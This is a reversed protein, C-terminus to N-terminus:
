YGNPADVRCYWVVVEVPKRWPKLRKMEPVGVVSGGMKAARATADAEDRCPMMLPFRLSVVTEYITKQTVTVSDKRLLFRATDRSFGLTRLSAVDGLKKPGTARKM